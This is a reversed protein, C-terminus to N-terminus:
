GEQRNGLCILFLETTTCGSQSHGNRVLVITLHAVREVGGILIRFGFGSAAASAARWFVCCGTDEIRGNRRSFRWARDRCLGREVHILTKASAIRM